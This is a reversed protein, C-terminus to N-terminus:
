AAPLVNLVPRDVRVALCLLTYFGPSSCTPSNQLPRVTCLVCWAPPKADEFHLASDFAAPVPPRKSHCTCFGHSITCLVGRVPHDVDEASLASGFTAPLPRRKAHCTGF